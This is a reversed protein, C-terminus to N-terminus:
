IVEILQYYPDFDSKLFTKGLKQYERRAALMIQKMGIGCSDQAAYFAASLAINKISGGALIFKDAMFDYDINSDLPAGAPFIGRWILERQEKEPFPFQVSFHLRRLFAEDINQLLNTALIVVGEYEEVKQLLYSTEVNAYRDHADRVESRKGFLADAEDFFLISNSTEAEAFIRALNKETEGIYKSIVQSVDIKYIEMSLDKAIVEAAMTKGSGPPGWFLVNLGKGLALRSNFGWEEYVISRYKVQSCIEKLQFIQDSPLVLMEWSYVAEIKPALTSLNRNSQAYCANYLEAEGILDNGSSNWIALSEARELAARIQGLTFRFKVAFADIDVEPAIRYDMSYKEWLIKRESANPFSFELSIFAFEGDVMNPNWPMFGLVFTLPVFSTVMQLLANLKGQHRGDEALLSHFNELCFVANGLVAQRELLRLIESFPVDSDLIKEADALILVMGLKQCVARIHTKKGSGEPGYFYFIQKTQNLVENQGYYWYYDMFRTVNEQVATLMADEQTNNVDALKAVHALHADLVQYDLLFNVVWDDLKLPRAILPVSTDMLNGGTEMLYRMLPAQPDFVRRYETREEETGVLLQLVFGIGPSKVGIDNQLYSYIKEYKRDLEPALCIIICNEEFPSLGYIKSIHPLSLYVGQQLSAERRAGTLRDLEALESALLSTDYDTSSDGGLMGCIEEATLTMGSFQNSVGYQQEVALYLRLLLNLRRLEDALYERSSEYPIIIETAM